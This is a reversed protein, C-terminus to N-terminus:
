TSTVVTYTFTGDTWTGYALGLWETANIATLTVYDGITTSQIYGATATVKSGLRITDGTNAVIRMGDADQVVFTYTLGAVATPLTHYNAATAGENTLLKNSELDNLANPTGSGATNAEVVNIAGFLRWTGPSGQSICTWGIAGALYSTVNIIRDGTNWAGDTPALAGIHEEGGYLTATGAPVYWRPYTTAAASVNGPQPHMPFSSYINNSNGYLYATDASTHTYYRFYMTYSTGSDFDTAALKRVYRLLVWRDEPIRMAYQLHLQAVAVGDKGEYVQISPRSTNGSTHRVWTHSCAWDGSALLSNQIYTDTYGCLAYGNTSTATLKKVHTRIGFPGGLDTSDAFTANVPSQGNFNYYQKPVMVPSVVNGESHAIWTHQGADADLISLPIVSEYTTDIDCVQSLYVKQLRDTYQTFLGSGALSVASPNRRIVGRHSKAVVITCEQDDGGHGAIGHTISFDNCHEILYSCNINVETYCSDINLGECKWARLGISQGELDCGSVKVVYGNKIFIGGGVQEDATATWNGNDTAGGGNYEWIVGTDTQLVRDGTQLFRYEDIALRATQDAVELRYAGFTNNASDTFGDHYGSNQRITSGEILIQNFAGGDAKIGWHANSSIDCNTITFMGFENSSYVGNSFGWIQVSDLSCKGFFSTGSFHIGHNTSDVARGTCRIMLNEFRVVGNYGDPPDVEFATVTKSTVEIAPATFTHYAGGGDSGRANPGRFTINSGTVTITSGIRYIGQTNKSFYVIGGGDAAAEIADVARQIAASQDGTQSDLAGFKAVDAVTQDVAMFRGTGTGSGDGGIGDLVFGYDVTASSAEEYRYTNAGIGETTYGRTMYYCNDECSTLAYLAAVNAVTAIGATVSGGGGGGGGGGEVDTTVLWVFSSGSPIALLTATEGADMFLTDTSSNYSISCTNASNNLTVQQGCRTPNDLYRTETGASVLNCFAPLRDVTIRNGDGPDEITLDANHLDFAIRHGNGM